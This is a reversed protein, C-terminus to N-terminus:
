GSLEESKILEYYQTGDLDDSKIIKSSQISDWKNNEDVPAM